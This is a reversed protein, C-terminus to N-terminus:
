RVLRGDCFVAGLNSTSICNTRRNRIKIMTLRRRVSIRTTHLVSRIRTRLILLTTLRRVCTENTDGKLAKLLLFSLLCILGIRVLRRTPMTLTLHRNYNVSRNNRTITTRLNTSCMKYASRTKIIVNSTLNNDNSSLSSLTLRKRTSITQRIRSVCTIRNDTASDDNILTARTLTMSRTVLSSHRLTRTLRRVLLRPTLKSLRRRKCTRNLLGNLLRLLVNNLLTLRQRRNNRQRMIRLTIVLRIMTLYLTFRTMNYTKSLLNRTVFNLPRCNVTLSLRTFLLLLIEWRLCEDRVTTEYMTMLSYITVDRYVHVIVSHIMDM